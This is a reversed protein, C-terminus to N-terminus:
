SLNTPPTQTRVFRLLARRRRSIWPGHGGGGSPTHTDVLSHHMGLLCFHEVKTYWCLVLFCFDGCIIIRTRKMYDFILWACQM